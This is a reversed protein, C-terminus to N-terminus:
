KMAGPILFFANRFGAVSHRQTSAGAPELLDADSYLTFNPVQKQGGVSALQVLFELNLRPFVYVADISGCVYIFFEVHRGEYLEPTVDFWFKDGAKRSATRINV